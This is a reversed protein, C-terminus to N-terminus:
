TRVAQWQVSYSLATNATPHILIMATATAAAASRFHIRPLWSASQQAIIANQLLPATIWGYTGAAPLDATPITFEDILPVVEPDLDRCVPAVNTRTLNSLTSPAVVGVYTAAQTQAAHVMLNASGLAGAADSGYLIVGAHLGTDSPATGIHAAYPGRERSSLYRQDSVLQVRVVQPPQVGSLANDLSVLKRLFDWDAPGRTEM